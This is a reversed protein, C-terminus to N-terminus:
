EANRPLEGWTWSIQTGENSYINQSSLWNSPACIGFSVFRHRCFCCALMLANLMSYWNNQLMLTTSGVSFTKYISRTRERRTSSSQWIADTTSALSRLLGFIYQQIDDGSGTDIRVARRSCFSDSVEKREGLGMEDKILDKFHLLTSIRANFWCPTMWERVWQYSHSYYTIQVRKSEGINM